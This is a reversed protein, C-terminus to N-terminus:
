ADTMLSDMAGQREEDTIHAFMPDDGAEVRAAVTAVWSAADAPDTPAPNLSPAPAAENGHADRYPQTVGLLVVPPRLRYASFLPAGSYGELTNCSRCLKGRVMGTRHCHDTFMRKEEIGCIACLERQWAIVAHLPTFEESM